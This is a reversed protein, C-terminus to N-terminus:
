ADDEVGEKKFAGAARAKKVYKGWDPFAKSAEKITEINADTLKAVSTVMEGSKSKKQIVTGELVHRKFTYNWSKVKGMWSDRYSEPEEYGYLMKLYPSYEVNWNKNFRYLGDEFIVMPEKPPMRKLPNKKDFGENYFGTMRKIDPKYHQQFIEESNPVDFEEMICDDKCLYSIKGAQIGQDNGHVYHFDQMVHHSMAGTRQVKEMMFSSLSKAEFVVEQLLKGKNIDVFKEIADFFFPPLELDLLLLSDKIENIKKKASAYDFQGGVVFDLKGSVQLLNKLETRVRIQKKKLLGASIFVMGVVWEWMNGAQFKRRSRLNPPNTYPVAYMRLYRDCYAKGLESAWIYDRAVMPREQVSDLSKNWIESFKWPVGTLIINGRKKM